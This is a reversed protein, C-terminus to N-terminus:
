LNWGVMFSFLNAHWCTKKATNLSILLRFPRIRGVAQAEFLHLSVLGLSEANPTRFNICRRFSALNPQSNPHKNQRHNRNCPIKSSCLHTNLKPDTKTEQATQQQQPPALPLTEGTRVASIGITRHGDTNDFAFREDRHKQQTQIQNHPPLQNASTVAAATHEHNTKTSASNRHDRM